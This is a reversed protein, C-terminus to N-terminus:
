PATEDAPPSLADSPQMDVKTAERWAQWLDKLLRKEMLRKAHNHAHAKTWDRELAKAKAEDYVVRYPGAPRKIEGTDKDILASQGRFLPDGVVAYIQARRQPNYGHRKALDADGKRQQREGEMVALGLRKWLRQHTAYGSLDNAESVIVALALDGLGRVGECWAWAPLKRAIKRMRAEVDKRLREVPERAAAFSLVLPSVAGVVAQSQDASSHQDGVGGVEIAARIAAAHKNIKSREAETMERSHGLARRILAQARNTLSGQMDICYRRTVGLEVAEAIAATVRESQREPEGQDGGGDGLGSDRPM